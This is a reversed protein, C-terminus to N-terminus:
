TKRTKWEVKGCLLVPDSESMFHLLKRDAKFAGLCFFMEAKAESWCVYFWGCGRSFELASLDWKLQEQYNGGTAM